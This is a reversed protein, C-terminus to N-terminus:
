EDLKIIMLGMLALGAILSLGLSSCITSETDDEEDASEDSESATGFVKAYDTDFDASSANTGYNAALIGLDGVDVKGDGNFDGESWTKDTGGYNAALIGLDGVDVKNDGNADGPIPKNKVTICFLDGTGGPLIYNSLQHNTLTVVESEGTTRNIRTIKDVTSDFTVTVIAATAAASTYAAHNANVIMFYKNADDDTFLGVVFGKTSSAVVVNSISYGSQATWAVTGMPQSEGSATVYFVGTSTLNKTVNGINKIEGIAGEVAEGISSLTGSSNLIANTYPAYTGAYTWYSLGSYGYALSMFAQLRLESESPEQRFSYTPPQNWGHGQQWSWYPIGVALARERVIALNEYFDSDTSGGNFPYHDFMIVDPKMTNIALNLNTRFTDKNPYAVLVHYTVVEPVNAKVGAVLPALAPYESPNSEDGINVGLCGPYLEIFRSLKSLFNDL